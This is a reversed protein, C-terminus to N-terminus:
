AIPPRWLMSSARISITSCLAGIISSFLRCAPKRGLERYAFRIGRATVFRNAANVYRNPPGCFHSLDTM